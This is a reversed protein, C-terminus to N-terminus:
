HSMLSCNMDSSLYHSVNLLSLAEEQVASLGHDEAALWKQWEQKRHTESIFVRTDPLGMTIM